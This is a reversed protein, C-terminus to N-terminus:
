YFRMGSSTNRPPIPKMVVRDEESNFVVLKKCKKCKRELYYGIYKKNDFILRGCGPCYIKIGKMGMVENFFCGCLFHTSFMQAKPSQGITIYDLYFLVNLSM